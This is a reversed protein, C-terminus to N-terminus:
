SPPIGDEADASVLTLARLWFDLTSIQGNFFSLILTNKRVLSKLTMVFIPEEYIITSLM